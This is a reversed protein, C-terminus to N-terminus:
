VLVRQASDLDSMVFILAVLFAAKIVSQRAARGGDRVEKMGLFPVALGVLVSLGYVFVMGWIKGTHPM